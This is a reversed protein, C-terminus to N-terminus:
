FTMLKKFEEFREAIDEDSISSLREIGFDEIVFSAMVSGYVAARRFDYPDVSGLKDLYGLFGGAFSDGAGTPDVVNECPRALVGFVQDKGILIAGHEGKKAVVLSPGMDLLRRCATILNNEGTVLKVEEDNAFFVDVDRLTRILAEGKTDIWLRITDMAVLRTNKAQPILELQQEPDINGLFLIDAYRYAEPLEPRYDALINVETQLTTRQNPDEGYRGAWFFTKGDQDITLGRTDVKRAHLLDIVDQPFDNGVASVLGPETFYSAALAAYTGSGGVIRERRETPTEITDFALTGVIVLSM